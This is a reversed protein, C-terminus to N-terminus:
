ILFCHSPSTDFTEILYKTNLNKSRENKRQKGKKILKKDQRERFKIPKSNEPYNAQLDRTKIPPNQLIGGIRDTFVGIILVLKREM